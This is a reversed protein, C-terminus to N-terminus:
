FQTLTHPEREALFALELRAVQAPDAVEVRGARVLGGLRIGGLSLAGVDAVALELDPTASTATCTAGAPGGQLRYRGDGLLPDTVAIVCDLEVGYRRGGLLAPVDTPRVWLGDAWHTTDVARPNTLRLPLPDDVPIRYSNIRAVLDLGLLTQWLAAHAEPSGPVYDVIECDGDPEGQNWDTKVRYSLYGDPHVLHLLAGNGKHQAPRDRLVLAWRQEDRSLGGPIRRRWRDYIAPLLPRAADTTLRQVATADVPEALRARTRHVVTRRFVTANGFGFRGYIGGESAYLLVAAQGADAAARVQRELLARVIGRRRHTVEVSVWTLGTAPVLAGGPLTFEFPLEASLGVIRHGDLGVLLRDLHLEDRADALSDDDYALGFSAGDVEAAAEFEAATAYRIEISM